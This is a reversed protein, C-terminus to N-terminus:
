CLTYPLKIGGPLNSRYSGLDVLPLSLVIKEGVKYGANCHGIVEKVEIIIERSMWEEKRDRRVFPLKGEYAFPLNIGM